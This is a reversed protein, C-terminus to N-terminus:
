SSMLSDTKDNINLSQISTILHQPDEKKEELTSLSIFSDTDMFKSLHTEFEDGTFWSVYPPCKFVNIWVYYLHKCPYHRTTYDPCNCTCKKPTITVHYVNKQAGMIHFLLSPEHSSDTVKEFQVISIKESLARDIRQEQEFNWYCSMTIEVYAVLLYILLYLFM